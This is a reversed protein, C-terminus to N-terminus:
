FGLMRRGAHRELLALRTEPNALRDLWWRLALGVPASRNSGKKGSSGAVASGGIMGADM